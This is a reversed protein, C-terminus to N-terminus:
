PKTFTRFHQSFMIISPKASSEGIKGVAELIIKKRLSGTTLEWRSFVGLGKWSCCSKRAALRERALGVL